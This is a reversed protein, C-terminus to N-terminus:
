IDISPRHDAPAVIKWRGVLVAVALGGALFLAVARLPTQWDGAFAGFIAARFAEIAFTFPLWGHVDQYFGSTLEAPLIGGGATLQLTLLLVAVLKGADGAIRLFAFIVAFFAVSSLAATAYFGVPDVPELGLGFRMCLALFLAQVLVAAAPLAFKGLAKAIRPAAANEQRITRLNFMNALLVAGVWAAVSLMSPVFAAGNNPVPALNEIRPEVSSALGGASGGITEIADPIAADLRELGALLRDSGEVLSDAGAGFKELDEDAPLRAALTHIGDGLATVGDVLTATGKAVEDAGAALRNSGQRASALGSRLQGAGAGLKGAGESVRAGGFPISKSKDEMEKLGDRLQGAGNQLRSLGGSLERQGSALSATGDRLKKLDAAAPMRGDMTRVAEAVQGFGDALQHAATGYGRAGEDLRRAGAVLEGVGSKMRDLSGASEGALSLVAKWRSENLTANVQHGLESVFRRAIAATQYNNGESLLLTIRGAGEANGPVAQASFDAPIVVAFALAGSQVAARAAEEDSWPEFRFDTRADLRAVLDRGVNVPQGRYDTGRDLNVIAAPLDATRAAPDWVGGIYIALYLAPFLTIAAVALGFRPFRRLLGLEGALIAVTQAPLARLWLALRRLGRPGAEAGGEAAPIIAENLDPTEDAAM